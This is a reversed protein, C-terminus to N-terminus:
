AGVADRAAFSDDAVTRRALGDALSPSIYKNGELITQVAVSLEEPAREKTLYGAARARWLTCPSNTRRTPATSEVGAVRPAAAQGGVVGGTRSPGSPQHGPDVFGLETGGAAGPDRARRQSRRVYRGPFEDQLIQKIGLRTTAHDETLLIGLGDPKSPKMGTASSHLRHCDNGQRRAKLRWKAAWPPPGSGCGLLELAGPDSQEKATIGRGNDRM